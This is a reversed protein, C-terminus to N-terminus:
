FSSFSIVMERFTFTLYFILKNPFVPLDLLLQRNKKINKTM